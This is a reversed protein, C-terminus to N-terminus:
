FDVAKDYGQNKLIEPALYEPTGCFTFAKPNKESMGIKSLGFDTIKIHGDRDILINEPKLDRYIVGNNHLYEFALIIEAIYFRSKEETFTVEKKLHFFLEGGACFEMVMYLKSKTQFSYKLKVVFQCDSNQMIEKENSTHIRQQRQEIVKKKLIKMAYFDNTGVKRVLLVKGFSGKGLVKIIEFDEPKVISSSSPRTSTNSDNTKMLPEKSEEDGQSSFCCGM